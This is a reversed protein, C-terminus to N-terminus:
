RVSALIQMELLKKACLHCFRINSKNNITELKVKQLINPLLEALISIFHDHNLNDCFNRNSNSLKKLCLICSSQQTKKHSWNLQNESAQESSSLSLSHGLSHNVKKM